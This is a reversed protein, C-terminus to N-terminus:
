QAKMGSIKVPEARRPIESKIFAAFEAPDLVAVDTGTLAIHQVAPKALAAATTQYLESIVDAPLRLQGHRRAYPCCGRENNEHRGFPIREVAIERKKGTSRSAGCGFDFIEHTM